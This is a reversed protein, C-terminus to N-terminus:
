WYAARCIALSVKGLGEDLRRVTIYHPSAWGGAAVGVSADWADLASQLRGPDQPQEQACMELELLSCAAREGKVVQAHSQADLVLTLNLVPTCVNGARFAQLCRAQGQCGSCPISCRTRAHSQSRTHACRWIYFGAPLTSARSLRLMPNLMSYSRSISLSHACM